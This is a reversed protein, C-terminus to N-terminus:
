TVDMAKWMPLLQGPCQVQLTLGRLSWWKMDPVRQGAERNGGAPLCKLHLPGISEEESAVPVSTTPLVKCQTAPCPPTSHGQPFLTREPSMLPPTSLNRLLFLRQPQYGSTFSPTLVLIARPILMSFTAKFMNGPILVEQGCGDTSVRTRYVFSLQPM